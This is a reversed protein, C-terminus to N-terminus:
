LEFTTYVLIMAGYWRGGRGQEPKYQETCSRGTDCVNTHKYLNLHVCTYMMHCITCCLIRFYCPVSYHVYTCQVNCQVTYLPFRGRQRKQQRESPPIVREQQLEELLCNNHKIAYSLILPSVKIGTRQRIDSQTECLVYFVKANHM